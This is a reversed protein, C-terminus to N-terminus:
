KKIDKEFEQKRKHKEINEKNKLDSEQSKFDELRRKRETEQHLGIEDETKQFEKYAPHAIGTLIGAYEGMIGLIRIGSDTIVFELISEDHHTARMKLILMSRKMKSEAEVYKLLFINHFISSIGLDTLNLGESQSNLIIFVATLQYKRILASIQKTILYIQDKYQHEFASLSDIVIRSPKNKIIHKELELILEDPSQTEIINSIINFGKEKLEDINYGFSVLAKQLEDPSEEFTCYIGSEGKFIGNAIFQLGFTTKGVGSAGIIATTTGKYFGGQIREDLGEIGIPIRNNFNISKIELSQKPFVIMGRNRIVCVHSERNIATGRMKIIKIKIPFANDNGHELKIIGDAVFEEIGSGIKNSGMPVESILMNTVGEARLMKGLVVHLAIRAENLTQFSQLIASFSDVVIRKANTEKITALVEELADQIGANTVSSLDLFSFKNQRELKKFNMELRETNDYFQEKSESFSVYIANENKILGEYLFHATLITKGTGPNGAVLVTSGKPIGGEILDDLGSIGTSIREL